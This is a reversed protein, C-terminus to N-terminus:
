ARCIGRFCELAHGRHAPLGREDGSHGQLGQLIGQVRAAPWPDSVRWLTRFYVRGLDCQSCFLFFLNNELQTRNWPIHSLKSYKRCKFEKSKPPPPLSEKRPLEAGEGNQQQELNGKAFNELLAKNKQLDETSLHERRKRTEM